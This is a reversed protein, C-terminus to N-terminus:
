SGSRVGSKAKRVGWIAAFIPLAALIVAGVVTGVDTATTTLETQVSDLPSQAMALTPATVLAGLALKMTKKTM